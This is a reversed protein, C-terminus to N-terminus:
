KISSFLHHFIFFSSHFCPFSTKEIIVLVDRALEVYDGKVNVRSKSTKIIEVRSKAQLQKIAIRVLVTNPGHSRTLTLMLHPRQTLQSQSQTHLSTRFM